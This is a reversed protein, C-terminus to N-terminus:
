GLLDGPVIPCDEIYLIGPVGVNFVEKNIKFAEQLM